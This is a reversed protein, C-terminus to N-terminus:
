HKPYTGTVELSSELVSCELAGSYYQQDKTKGRDCSVKKTHAILIKFSSKLVPHMLLIAGFM